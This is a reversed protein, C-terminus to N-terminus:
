QSGVLSALGGLYYDLTTNPIYQELTSANMSFANGVCASFLPIHLM